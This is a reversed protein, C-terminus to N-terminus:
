KKRYRKRVDETHGWLEKEYARRNKAVLKKEALWKLFEPKKCHDSCATYRDPCGKCPSVGRSTFCIGPSNAM